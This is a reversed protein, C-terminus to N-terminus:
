KNRRLYDEGVLVQRPKAGQYPGIVAKDELMDILRAARNYGIRFRRQLLSISVRKAQIAFEVAEEFLEEAERDVQGDKKVKYIGEEYVPEKQKRLFDGVKEIEKDSVFSGQVRQPKTEGASLFLMDGKGVLKEAGGMDLVTRSDVRASVQFSIRSPFNAKILGTVVDVSPRQTVLILHIGVARSMQALRILIDECDQPAVLMLDALEDIVVVIYPLISSDKNEGEGSKTSNTGITRNYGEIDRVGAESFERYRREMERVLWKLALTAKKSDTIVPTVLHPIGAFPKLEVMKPDVMLFKVREAEAKFLISTILSNVCVSKGSGTAGAILLHPLEKLDTIVPQGAIDKGLGFVLPSESEQFEDSELVEKLSVVHMNSKKKPIEIGIAAKGPIPAELRVGPVALALAIDNSLSVITSVKVGAAPQVEFRTIVPGSDTRLIKAEIDFDKLTKELLRSAQEVAEESEKGRYPAMDLLSLSPFQYRRSVEEKERERTPSEKKEEKREKKRSVLPKEKPSPVRKRRGKRLERIRQVFPLFLFDTTLLLAIFLLTGLIVFGGMRGFSKTLVLATLRGLHGGKEGQVFAFACFAVLFVLVGILKLLLNGLRKGRFSNFGWIGLILPVLFAGWGLLGYLFRGLYHGVRGAYNDGVNDRDYSLFSLLILIALTLIILGRIENKRQESIRIRM